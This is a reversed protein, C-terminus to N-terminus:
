DLPSRRPPTRTFSQRTKERCGIEGTLAASLATNERQLQVDSRSPGAKPLSGFAAEQETDSGLRFSSLGTSKQRHALPPAAKFNSWVRLLVWLNRRKRTTVQGNQPGAPKKEPGGGARGRRGLASVDARRKFVNRVTEKELADPGKM